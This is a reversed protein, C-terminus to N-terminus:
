IKGRVALGMARAKGRVMFRFVWSKTGAKTVKLYLGAGDAHLGPKLKRGIQLANLKGITKAM